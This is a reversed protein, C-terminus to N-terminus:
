VKLMVKGIVKERKVSGFSRSDESEAKNDGVVYLSNGSAASVRKVISIDKAPHRLVVIDGPMLRCYLRSVILYDGEKIAPEMSRDRVKFFALPLM